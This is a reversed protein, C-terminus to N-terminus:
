CCCRREPRWRRCTCHSPITEDPPSQHRRPPRPLAPPCALSSPCSTPASLAQTYLLALPKPSCSRPSATVLALARFCRLRFSSAVFVIDFLFGDARWAKREWQKPKATSLGELLCVCPPQVKLRFLKDDIYISGCPHVLARGGGVPGWGISHSIGGGVQRAMERHERCEHQHVAM